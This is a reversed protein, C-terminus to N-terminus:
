ATPQQPRVILEVTLSDFYSNPLESETGYSVDIVRAEMNFTDTVVHVTQGPTALLTDGKASLKDRLSPENFAYESMLVKTVTRIDSKDFLWVECATVKSPPGAELSESIGVGCEGLFAGEATEVSFSEDYHDDGFTYKTIFHGLATEDRQVEPALKGGTVPKPGVPKAKRRRMDIFFLIAAIVIMLLTLGICIQVLTMISFGPAKPPAAPQSPASPPVEPPSITLVAVPSTTGLAGALDEIRQAQDTLGQNRLNTSMNAILVTVESDNWGKLRNQVELANGTVRYSDALMSLYQEKEPRTLEYSYSEGTYQVPWIMYGMVWWGFLCGIVSFVVLFLIPKNKIVDRLIDLPNM